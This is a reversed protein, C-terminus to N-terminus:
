LDLHLILKFLFVGWVKYNGKKGIKDNEAYKLRSENNENPFGM